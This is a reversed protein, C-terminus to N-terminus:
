RLCEPLDIVIAEGVDFYEVRMMAQGNMATEESLPLGTAADLLLTEVVQPMGPAMAAPRRTYRRAEGHPTQTLGTFTVVMGEREAAMPLDSDDDEAVLQWSNFAKEAEGILRRAQEASKITAAAAVLNQITSLTSLGGTQVAAAVSLVQNLLSRASQVTADRKAKALRAVLGPASTRVAARTGSTVREMRMKGFGQLEYESVQRTRDGVIETVTPKVGALGAMQGLLTERKRHPQATLRAYAAEVEAAPKANTPDAPLDAAKTPYVHVLTTFVVFLRFLGARLISPNM